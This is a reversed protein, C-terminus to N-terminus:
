EVIIEKEDETFLITGDETLLQPHKIYFPIILSLQFWEGIGGVRVIRPIRCRVISIELNRFIDSLSDAYTYATASATKTPVMIMIHILGYVRHCQTGGITLQTSGVEEILLRIFSTAASPTYEVNDWAIATTTWNANLKSEIDQRIDQWTGM